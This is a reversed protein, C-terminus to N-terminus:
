EFKLIEDYGHQRCYHKTDSIDCINVLNATIGDKRCDKCYELAESFRSESFLVLVKSEKQGGAKEMEAAELMGDVYIAFGAATTNMGMKALLDDYRGGSVIVDSIGNAYAKFILGTYYKMNGTMGIDIILNAALGMEGTKRYVEFLYEASQKVDDNVEIKDIGAFVDEPKGFLGPLRCIMDKHRSSVPLDAAARELEVLNKRGILDIIRAEKEEPLALEKFIGRIIGVHGIDIKYNSVGAERFSERTMDIIELDLWKGSCGYIEAGIQCLEREATPEKRDARYVNGM